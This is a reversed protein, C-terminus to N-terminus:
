VNNMVEGKSKYRRCLKMYRCKHGSYPNEATCNLNYYYKGQKIDNIINEVYRYGHDLIIPLKEETTGKKRKSPFISGSLDNIYIGDRKVEEVSSFLIALCQLKTNPLKEKFIEETARYILSAEINELNILKDYTINYGSKKRYAYIIYRGTPMAESGQMKYELEVRDITVGVKVDDIDLYYRSDIIIPNLITSQQKTFKSRLKIDNTLFNKVTTKLSVIDDSENTLKPYDKFIENMNSQLAMELVDDKLEYFDSVGKYYKNITNKYFIAKDKDNIGDEDAIDSFKDINFIKNFMFAMPCRVYDGIEKFWLKQIYFKYNKFYEDCTIVGEYRTFESKNKRIDEIEGITKHNNLKSSDIHQLLNDININYKGKLLSKHLENSTMANDINFNVYDRISLKENEKNCTIFKVSDIFQSAIAFKGEENASRYSLIIEKKGSALTLIFRIKERDLEWNWDKYRISKDKLTRLEVENFLGGTKPVVPVEGENLGLVFIYDFYIGKALDTNLIALGGRNAKSITVKAEKLYEKFINIFEEKLIKENLINMSNFDSDLANSLENISNAVAIDDQNLSKSLTYYVDNIFYKIFTIGEKINFNEPLTNLTAVLDRSIKYSSLPFDYSMNIPIKYESFVRNIEAEYAEKNNVYIAIDGLDVEEMLLKKIKKATYIVEARISPYEIIKINEFKGEGKSSTFLKTTLEITQLNVNEKKDFPEEYINFSMDNFINVIERNLFDDTFDTKYPCNIFIDIQHNEAMEKILDQNVKDINLFGDIVIYRYKNFIKNDKVKEVALISIDNVDYISNDYLFKNYNSYILSMDTLKKKLIRDEIGSIIKKLKEENILNRKLYKIFVRAENQFGEKHKIKNYYCLNLEESDCITKLIVKECNSDIISDRKVNDETVMRELEDFMIINSGIIGKNRNLIEQRVEKMAERSPLIYLFNKGQRQLEICRDILESRRNSFLEDYYLTNAM